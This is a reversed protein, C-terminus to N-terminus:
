PPHPGVIEPCNTFFLRSGHLASQRVILNGEECSRCRGCGCHRWAVSLLSKKRVSSRSIWMIEGFRLWFPVALSTCRYFTSPVVHIFTMPQESQHNLWKGPGCVDCYWQASDRQQPWDKYGGLDMPKPQDKKGNNRQRSLNESVKYCSMKRSNIFFANIQGEWKDQWQPQTTRDGEWGFGDQQHNTKCRLTETLFERVQCIQWWHLSTCTDYNLLNERNRPPNLSPAEATNVTDVICDVSQCRNQHLNLFSVNISFQVSIWKLYSLYPWRLQQNPDLSTWCENLLHLM